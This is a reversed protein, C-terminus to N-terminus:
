NCIDKWSTTWNWHPKRCFTAKCIYISTVIWYSVSFQIIHGIESQNQKIVGCIHISLGGVCLFLTGSGMNMWNCILNYVLLPPLLLSELRFSSSTSHSTHVEQWSTVWGGVLWPSNLLAIHAPYSVEIWHSVQSPKTDNSNCHTGYDCGLSGTQALTVIIFNLMQLDSSPYTIIM